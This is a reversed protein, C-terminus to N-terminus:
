GVLFKNCKELTQGEQRSDFVNGGVTGKCLAVSFKATRM